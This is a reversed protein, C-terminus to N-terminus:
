RSSSSVTRRKWLAASSGALGVILALQAGLSLPHPGRRRSPAGYASSAWHHTARALSGGTAASWASDPSLPSKWFRRFAEAGIRDHLGALLWRESPGLPAIFTITENPVLYPGHVWADPVRRRGATRVARGSRDRSMMLARACADLSGEACAITVPEFHSRSSWEGHRALWAEIGRRPPLGFARTRLSDAVGTPSRLALEYGGGALWRDIGAGPEGYAAHFGCPGLLAGNALHLARLLTPSQPGTTGVAISLPVRIISVCTRGDVVPPLLYQNGLANQRMLTRVGFRAGASDVVVFVAVPNGDLPPPLAGTELEVAREIAVRVPAPVDATFFLTPSSGAAHKAALRPLLADRRELMTLVEIERRLRRGARDRVRVETLRADGPSPESVQEPPLKAVAILSCAALTGIIWWRDTLAM